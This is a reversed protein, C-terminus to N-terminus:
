RDRGPKLASVTFTPALLQLFRSRILLLQVDAQTQLSDLPLASEESNGVSSIDCSHSSVNAGGGCYRNVNYLRM